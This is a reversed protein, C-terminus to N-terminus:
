VSVTSKENQKRPGVPGRPRGVRKVKRVERANGLRIMEDAFGNLSRRRDGPAFDMYYKVFEITKSNEDQQNTPSM